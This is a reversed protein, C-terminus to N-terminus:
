PTIRQQHQRVGVPIDVPQILGQALHHPLLSRETGRAAEPCLPAHPLKSSAIPDDKKLVGTEKFRTCPSVIRLVDPVAHEARHDRGAVCEARRQKRDPEVAAALNNQALVAIAVDIVAIRHCDVLRLARSDVPGKHKGAAHHVPVQGIHGHGTMTVPSIKISRALVEPESPLVPDRNVM